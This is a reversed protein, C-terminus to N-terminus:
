SKITIPPPEPPTLAALIAPSCPALTASHSFSLIPPVHTILPQIGLFSKNSEVETILLIDGLNYYDRDVAVSVMPELIIGASGKVDGNYEEFYIYRENEEMIERAKEINKYLWEKITFM